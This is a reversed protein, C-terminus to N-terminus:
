SSGSDGGQEILSTLLAVMDEEPPSDGLPPVGEGGM